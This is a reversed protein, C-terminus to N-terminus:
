GMTEFLPNKRSNIRIQKSMELMAINKGICTRSGGGFVFSYRHMDHKKEEDLWRDPRFDEADEGYISKNRHLVWPSTGVEYKERLEELLRELAAPTRLLHYVISSLSASTTDSGAVVNSTLMFGVDVETLAPKARHAALLKSLIDGAHGDDDGGDRDQRAAVQRVTFDHLAGNRATVALLNGFCPAVLRQHLRYVWPVEGVWAGSSLAAAIRAFIGSDSVADIYGFRRAFSVEGIVDFAFLQILYAFDITQGKSGIEELKDLFVNITTDVYPELSKMTDMTYARSVLRRQQGHIQENPEAFLDFPRKGKFPSYMEGKVFNHGASYIVKFGEPSAISSRGM